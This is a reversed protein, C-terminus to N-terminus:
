AKKGLQKAKIPSNWSRTTRTDQDLRTEGTSHSPIHPDGPSFTKRFRLLQVLINNSPSQMGLSCSFGERGIAATRYSCQAQRTFLSPLFVGPKPARLPFLWFSKREKLRELSVQLAAETVLLLAKAPLPHSVEAGQLWRGGVTPSVHPVEGLISASVRPDGSLECCFGKKIRRCGM